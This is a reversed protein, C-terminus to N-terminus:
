STLLIFVKSRENQKIIKSENLWKIEYLKLFISRVFFWDFHEHNMSVKMAIYKKTCLWAYFLEVMRGLKDSKFILLNSFWDLKRWEPLVKFYIMNPLESLNKASEKKIAETDGNYKNEIGKAFLLVFM